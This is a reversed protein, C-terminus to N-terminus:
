SQRSLIVLRQLTDTDQTGLHSEDIFPIRAAEILKILESRNMAQVDRNSSNAVTSNAQSLEMSSIM